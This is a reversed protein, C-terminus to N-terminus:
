SPPTDSGSSSAAGSASVPQSQFTLLRASLSRREEGERDLRQRLDDITDAAARRDRELAMDARDLMERLMKVEARLIATEAENPLPGPPEKPVPASKRPWGEPFVRVLESADIAYGGGELREASIRGRKIYRHMTSASVGVERAAQKM